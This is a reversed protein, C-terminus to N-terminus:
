NAMLRQLHLKRIGRPTTARMKATNNPHELESGPGSSVRESKRFRVFVGVAVDVVRGADRPVAVPVAVDSGVGVNVGVAVRTAVGVMVALWVGIRVGVEVGTGVAM